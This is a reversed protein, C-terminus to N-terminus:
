LAVQGVALDHGRYLRRDGGATGVLRDARASDAAAGADAAFVRVCDRVAVPHGGLVVGSRRVGGPLLQALRDPHGGGPCSEGQPHLPEPLTQIGRHGRLHGCVAPAHRRFDRVIGGAPVKARYSRRGQM